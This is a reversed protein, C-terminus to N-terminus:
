VGGNRKGYVALTGIFTGGVQLNTTAHADPNTASNTERNTSRHIVHKDGEGKLTITAYVADLPDLEGGVGCGQARSQLLHHRSSRGSTQLAGDRHQAAGDALLERLSFM